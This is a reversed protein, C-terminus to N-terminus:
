NSKLVELFKDNPVLYFLKGLNKLVGAHQAADEGTGWFLDVRDTGRIAGGTDQDLVFRSTEVWTNPRTSFEDSFTPKPFELYALTGKPYFSKDTAITRGDIVEAGSHTVPRGEIERFFVYSPNQFLIEQQQEPSLSRLHKDLAQMTMEEKPIKDYLLRGIGVYPHGNKAAYGLRIERGNTFRVTGSGQVQLFFADVPDVWALELRKGELVGKGDIEERSYYPVINKSTGEHYAPAIRGPILSLNNKPDLVQDKIPSMKEFQNTFKGLHFNVLDNPTAYLPQSYKETKRKSGILVPEFYSTIFVEGWDDRGYVEYFDFKDKVLNYFAEKTLGLNIKETLYYMSLIYDDKNIIKPGFTLSATDSRFLIEVNENIGKALERLDLDDSLNKPVGTKKMAQEANTAPERDCSVIFLFISSICALIILKHM